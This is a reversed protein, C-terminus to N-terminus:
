KTLYIIIKWTINIKPSGVPECPLEVQEKFRYQLNYGKTIIRAPTHESLVGYIYKSPPGEGIATNATIWFEYKKYPELGFIEHSKKYPFERLSKTESANEQYYITYHLIEGNSKLPAEWTRKATTYLLELILQNM